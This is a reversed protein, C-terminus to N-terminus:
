KNPKFTNALEVPYFRLHNPVNLTNRIITQERIFNNFQEESLEIKGEKRVYKNYFYVPSDKCKQFEEKEFDELNLKKM